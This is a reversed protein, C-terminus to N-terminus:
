RTSGPEPREAQTGALPRVVELLEEVVLPNACVYFFRVEDYRQLIRVAAGAQRAILGAAAVDWLYISSEVYADARGCAVHCIDLAAAGMIRLKRTRLALARILEFPRGGSRGVHKSLGTLVLTRALPATRSPSVPRGNLLAPGTCHACYLEEAAPVYVAGALVEAGAAVAVSSCWQPLGHHFNVTGDIPDIIWRLRDAPDVRPEASEEGLIAHSPFASRIVAEAAQQSEADLRLKVDHEYEAAIEGRRHRQEWAYRGAARAARCACDQLAELFDRSQLASEPM